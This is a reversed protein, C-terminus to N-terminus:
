EQAQISIQVVVVLVLASVVGLVVAGRGPDLAHQDAAVVTGTFQGVVQAVSGLRYRQGGQDGNGPLAPPDLLRELGGLGQSPQVLVLDAVLVSGAVAVVVVLAGIIM